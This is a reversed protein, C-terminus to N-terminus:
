ASKKVQNKLFRKGVAADELERKLDDLMELVLTHLQTYTSEDIERKIGHAIENRAKLLSGDLLLERPAWIGNELGISKLIDYLVAANLNSETDVSGKYTKTSDSQSQLISEVLAVLTGCRKAQQASRLQGHYVVATFCSSLNGLKGGIRYAFDLYASAAEKAFGEWHAYLIAVGARRLTGRAQDSPAAAIQGSIASIELKRWALADAM